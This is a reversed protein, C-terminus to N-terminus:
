KTNGPTNSIPLPVIEQAGVNLCEGRRQSSLLISKHGNEAGDQPKHLEGARM